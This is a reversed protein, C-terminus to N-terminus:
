SGLATNKSGHSQYLSNYGYATNDNGSINSSLSSYGNAINYYGSSNSSLANEGVAQNTPINDGGRGIRLGNVTIDKTSTLSDATLKNALLNHTGLDVNDTAGTYTVSSGGGPASPDRWISGDHFLFKHAMSDFVVMGAATTGSIANISDTALRPLLLGKNTSEVELAASSNVQGDSNETSIKVQSYLNTSM